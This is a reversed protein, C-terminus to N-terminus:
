RRVKVEKDLTGLTQAFQHSSMMDLQQTVLDEVINESLENFFLLGLLNRQMSNLQPVIQDALKGMDSREDLKVTVMKSRRKLTRQAGGSSMESNEDVSELDETSQSSQNMMPQNSSSSIHRTLTNQNEELMEEKLRGGKSQVINKKREESSEEKSEKTIEATSESASNQAAAKKETKKQTKKYSVAQRREKGDLKEVVQSGEESERTNVTTSDECSNKKGSPKLKTGGSTKVTPPLDQRGQDMMVYTKARIALAALGGVIGSNSERKQKRSMRSSFRTTASLALAPSLLCHCPPSGATGTM